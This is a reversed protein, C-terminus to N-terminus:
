RNYVDAILMNRPTTAALYGTKGPTVIRPAVAVTHAKVCPDQLNGGVLMADTVEKGLHAHVAPM